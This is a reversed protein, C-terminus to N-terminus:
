GKDTVARGSRFAYRRKTLQVSKQQGDAAFVTERIEARPDEGGLNLRKATFFLVQKPCDPNVVVITANEFERNQFAISM